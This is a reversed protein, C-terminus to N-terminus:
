YGIVGSGKQQPEMEEEEETVLGPPASPDAIVQLTQTQEQGDVALVVRYTGPPVPKLRGGFGGGPRGGKKKGAGVKPNAGGKANPAALVQALNWSVKHLGPSGAAKLKQVPKGAADTITLSIKETSKPLSYYLQVGVPLNDGVFERNTGGRVPKPVWQVGVAPKYLKPARALEPLALQRLPTVDLVWLSRGHTAAVIEGATAHQAFDHIAVTPLNTNLSVWQQGRDLSCWTGFETGLYLLNPNVIDERLVRTSGWPLNSRLSNWTKGFDETVFVYPEDDDSRHADLVVYARGEVYRSAEISAIWRYGPLALHKTINTWEKGGDRTIWLYGDDTGVYLVNPNKPSEALASATGKETRTIDPSIPQLDNGRDLSRYVLNGASYYIRPNHRSLIFPTNWNFRVKGGQQGPPGQMGAPRIPTIKGTRFNRRQTVGYQAEFYVLDPDDPDVACRFGDGGGVRICDENVPGGPRLTFAPVGWTGNDQLGGYAMYHAKTDVAVHYFQGLALTNLHDWNEMRDHTVYFGGDGGLIMHRGDRPNIWLAHHDPHAGRGGDGKFTKGGDASRYLSIGLVYVRKDDSPDVRIQSFYMPRPNLSNIRQWTEGGDDSRYTGGYQFGDPEQKAGLNEKQGGLRDAFPRDAGERKGLTIDVTVTQTGRLLTVKVKDGGNHKQIQKLLDDYTGIKKQDIETIVDDANFGAKAAPGNPVVQTLRAGPKGDEGIIGLYANGTPTGKPAMGIKESELVMYVIRPDARYYDLGIRGLTCPPLGQTIKHFHKGGDTTRYLGSGKGWKQSPDNYDFGDRRREYTAVLLSEPNSPDMQVDIVGTNEDIFLVKEWTRGGDVTKFLGRAPNPGYLRGLAGVYVINPDTPHIAIRGIQFTQKLGMNKWTKGGDTSKYVGDGYSASNRPNGEGTGVWVINPDTVAVCVDGISVTKEHDFQHQFTIGANTTKVLGGSATAVYFITPDKEYVALATIRGSMAAPGICRWTLPKLWEPGFTPVPAAPDGAPRLLALPLLSVVLVLGGCFWSLKFPRQM